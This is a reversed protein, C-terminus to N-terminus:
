ATVGAEVQAPSATGTPPPDEAARRRRTVLARVRESQLLCLLIIVAAKVGLAGAQDIVAAVKPAPVTVVVLDPVTPCDALTPYAAVSQVHPADPNVPYVPGAFGGRLLHRFVLGGITTRDRSAGVVAVANPRFM